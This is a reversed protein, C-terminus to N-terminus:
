GDGGERKSAGRLVDGACGFLRDVVLVVTEM